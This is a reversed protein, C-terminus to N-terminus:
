PLILGSPSVKNAAQRERELFEVRQRLASNQAALAQVQGRIQQDYSVLSANSREIAYNTIDVLDVTKYHKCVLAHDTFVEIGLQHLKRCFGLDEGEIMERSEPDYKFEFYPKQLDKFVDKKLFLCGTAIGAVFERGATPQSNSYTLHGERTPHMVYTTYVIKDKMWIPYTIGAAKWGSQTDLVFQVSDPHPVIDSDLFWLIDADSELFEEVFANRAFDHFIRHACLSPYIFEVDDKHRKELRRMAYNQADRRDGTSPIGMFIKLKSM